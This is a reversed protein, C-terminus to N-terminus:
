SARGGKQSVPIPKDPVMKKDSCLCHFGGQKYTYKPDAGDPCQCTTKRKTRGKRIADAICGALVGAKLANSERIRLDDITAELESINDDKQKLDTKLGEIATEAESLEKDRTKLESRLGDMLSRVSKLESTLKQVEEYRDAFAKNAASHEKRLKGVEAGYEAATEKLVTDMEVMAAECQKVKEAEKEAREHNMDVSWKLIEVVNWIKDERRDDRLVIVVWLITILLLAVALMVNIM